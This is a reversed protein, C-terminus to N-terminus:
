QAKSRIQGFSCLVGQCVENGNEQADGNGGLHLSRLEQLQVGQDDDTQAQHCKDEIGEATDHDCLQHIQEQLFLDVGHDASGINGCEGHRGTHYMLHTKLFITLIEQQHMGDADINGALDCGDNGATQDQSQHLIQYSTLAICISRSIFARGM